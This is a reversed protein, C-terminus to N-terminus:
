FLGTVLWNNNTRSVYNVFSLGLNHKEKNVKGAGTCSHRMQVM